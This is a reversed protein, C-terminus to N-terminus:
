ENVKSVLESTREFDRSPGQEDLRDVIAEGEIPNLLFTHIGKGFHRDCVAVMRYVDEHGEDREGFIKTSVADKIIYEPKGNCYKCHEDAM